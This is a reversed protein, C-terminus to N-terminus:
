KKVCNKERRNYNKFYYSFINLPCKKPSYITRSFRAFSSIDPRATQILPSVQGILADGNGAHIKVHYIRFMTDIIHLPCHGCDGGCGTIAEGRQGSRLVARAGGNHLQQICARVPHNDGTNFCHLFYFVPETRWISGMPFDLSQAWLRLDIRSHIRWHNQPM